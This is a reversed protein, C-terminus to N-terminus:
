SNPSLAERVARALAGATFPKSLLKIDPSLVESGRFHDQVYGSMYLIRLEPQDESLHRAFAPGSVGPMVVDTLLLDIKGRRAAVLLMAATTDPAELVQYGMATLVRVAFGRVADDDEVLLITEDGGVTALVQETAALSDLADAQPLYIKFTTGHDAESYVYISGGSQKVIGYVTALGLGTGKGPEKTTFFPEFLHAQTEPDMGTGTDSIALLVYPGATVEPHAKAYETDLEVATTEITLRGGLPMADRANLAINVIVQEIQSTDVRVQGVGAETRTELDIHEGILRRLLPIIGEVIAAPNVIRPQLVQRRSFALLGRTLEAARDANVIVEDLDSRAQGADTLQDRALETYGRIATLLNNFDHAIGGALQGIAEMKQSQRLQAELVRERTVDRDAQIFSTVRGDGDRLASIVSEVEISSGDHRRNVILGAFTQGDAVSDWLRTWFEDSHHGSDLLRAPRGIVEALSYGYLRSFSPNVYAITGDLHQIVISDATQEVASILRVREQESEVQDTIDRYTMVVGGIAPQGLLNTAVVAVDRWSGDAHHLRLTSEINAGPAALAADFQGRAAVAREPQVLGLTDTGLLVAPDRGVLRGMAPSAYTIAGTPDLIAVGDSANQVLARFREESHRERRRYSRLVFWFVALLLFGVGFVIVTGARVLRQTAGLDALALLAFQRHDRAETDVITEIQSFLPDIEAADIRTTLDMNGADVAQFMRGVADLYRAHLSLAREVEATMEPGAPDGAREVRLADNLAGVLDAAATAHMARIDPGPNLRYKRELSEEAGAAYRAQQFSDSSLSASRVQDSADETALSAVINWTALFVLVLALGFWALRGGLQADGRHPMRSAREAM